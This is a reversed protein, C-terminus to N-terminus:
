VRMAYDKARGRHRRPLSSIVNVRPFEDKEQKGKGEERERERELARLTDGTTASRPRGEAERGRTRRAYVHMGPACERARARAHMAAAM